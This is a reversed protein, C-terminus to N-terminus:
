LCGLHSGSIRLWPQPPCSCVRVEKATAKTLTYEAHDGKGHFHLIHYLDADSLSVGACRKKHISKCHDKIQQTASAFSYCRCCKAM